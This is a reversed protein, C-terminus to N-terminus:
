SGGFVHALGAAGAPGVGVQVLLPHAHPLRSLAFFAMLLSTCLEANKKADERLLRALAQLLAPHAALAGLMGPDRFLQAISAAAATKVGLDDEYLAEQVSDPLGVQHYAM